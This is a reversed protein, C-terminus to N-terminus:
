FTVEGSLVLKSIFNFGHCFHTDKLVLRHTHGNFIKVVLNIFPSHNVQTYM